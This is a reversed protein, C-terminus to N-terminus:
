RRACQASARRRMELGWTSHADRDVATEVNLIKMSREGLSDSRSIHENKATLKSDADSLYPGEIM